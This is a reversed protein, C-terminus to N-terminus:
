KRWEPYVALYKALLQDVVRKANDTMVAQFYALGADADNAHDRLFAFRNWVTNVGRLVVNEEGEIITPRNMQVFRLLEGFKFAIIDTEVAKVRTIELVLMLCRIAMRGNVQLLGSSERLQPSHDVHLQVLETRVRGLSDAFRADKNTVQVVASKESM